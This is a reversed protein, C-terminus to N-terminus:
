WPQGTGTELYQKMSGLFHKWGQIVMDPPTEMKWGDHVLAVRVGGSTESITWSLTTGVWSPMDHAVCTWAIRRNPELEDSRFRMTVINGEKDFRLQSEGGIEAAIQCDKSWWGRYGSQTSLAAYAEDPTTNIQVHDKIASM